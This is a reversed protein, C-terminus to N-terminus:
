SEGRTFAPGGPGPPGPWPSLFVGGAQFDDRSASEGRQPLVGREETMGSVADPTRDARGSRPTRGKNMIHKSYERKCWISLIIPENSPFVARMVPPPEPIPKAM